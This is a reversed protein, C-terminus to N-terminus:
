DARLGLQESDLSQGVRESSESSLGSSSPQSRNSKKAIDESQLDTLVVGRPTVGGRPARSLALLTSLSLSLHSCM